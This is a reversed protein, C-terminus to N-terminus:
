VQTHARISAALALDDPGPPWGSAATASGMSLATTTDVAMSPPIGRLANMTRALRDLITEHRFWEIGEHDLFVDAVQPMRTANFIRHLTTELKPSATCHAMLIISTGLVRQLRSRRSEPDDAMGIKVLPRRPIGPRIRYMLYISTGSGVYARLAAEIEIWRSDTDSNTM